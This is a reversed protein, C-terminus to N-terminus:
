SPPNWQYEVPQCYEVFGLRKYVNYGMKSSLLISVKYDRDRAEFLPVASIYIGIGKRRADPHTAVNHIGAVGDSYLVTACAVPEDDLFGLYNCYNDRLRLSLCMQTLFDLASEPMGYASPLLKAHVELMEPTTVKQYTFGKPIEPINLKDILLAMGIREQRNLGHDELRQSLDDPTDGPYVQWRFPLDKSSFYDITEQIKEDANSSSLRTRMVRNLLPIKYGSAMTILWKSERSEFQPTRAYLLLLNTWNDHIAKIWAELNFEQLIESLALEVRWHYMLWELDYIM